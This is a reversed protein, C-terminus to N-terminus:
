VQREGVGPEWEIVVLLAQGEAARHFAKLARQSHLVAGKRVNEEGTDEDIAVDLAGVTEGLLICGKTHEEVNGGHILIAERHPVDMLEYVGMYKVTTPTNEPTRYFAHYRGAPICSIERQNDHWEEELTFGEWPASGDRLQLTAKGFTGHTGTGYRRVTFVALM